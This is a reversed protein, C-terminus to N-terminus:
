EEHNIKCATLWNSCMPRNKGEYEFAYEAPVRDELEAMGFAMSSQREEMDFAILFRSDDMFGQHFCKAIDLLPAMDIFYLEKILNLDSDIFAYSNQMALLNLDHKLTFCNLLRNPATCSIPTMASVKLM